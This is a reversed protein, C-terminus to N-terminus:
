NEPQRYPTSSLTTHGTQPSSCCGDTCYERAGSSPCLPAQFMNLLCYSRCYFYRNCRTPMKNGCYHVKSNWLSRPIKKSAAFWNLEWSPSQDISYGLLYILRLIRRSIKPDPPLGHRQTWRDWMIHLRKFRLLVDVSLCVAFCLHLFCSPSLIFFLFTSPFILCFYRHNFKPCLSPCFSLHIPPHILYHPSPFSLFSCRWAFTVTCGVWDILWRLVSGWASVKADPAKQTWSGQFRRHSGSKAKLCLFERVSGARQSDFNLDIRSSEQVGSTSSCCTGTAYPIAIYCWVIKSGSCLKGLVSNLYNMPKIIRM